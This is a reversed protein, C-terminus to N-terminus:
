LRDPLSIQKRRQRRLDPVSRVLILLFIDPFLLERVQLLVHCM